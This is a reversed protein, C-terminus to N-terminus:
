NDIRKFMLLRLKSLEIHQSLHALRTLDELFQNSMIESLPLFFGQM